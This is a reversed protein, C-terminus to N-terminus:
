NKDRQERILSKLKALAAIQIQRVRERTISLAQSIEELTKPPLGNLGFRMTLILKQRDKLHEFFGKMEEIDERSIMENLPQEVNTDVIFDQMEYKDESDSAKQNLSTNTLEIKRLHKITVISFNLYDALERNTPVRGLLERLKLEANKIKVAKAVSSVPVRVTRSMNALCLRIAQKIWIASYSSFKVGRKPDFKEAAKMLGINGEAIIEGVSVGYNKYGHAISVVLKLNSEILKDRAELDGALSKLGLEFEDDKTLLPFKSIDDFYTNLGSYFEDYMNKGGNAYLYRWM